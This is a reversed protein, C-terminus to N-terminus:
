GFLGALLSNGVMRPLVDETGRYPLAVPRGEIASAYLGFMADAQPIVASLATPHPVDNDIAALARRVLAAQATLDEDLYNVSGARYGTTGSTEWGHMQWHVFGRTGYVAIRKHRHPRQDDCSAPANPGCALAVRVRNSLTMEALVLGPARHSAEMDAQSAQGFISVPAAEGNFAAILDLLHPGQDAVNMRCSADVFRVEGIRGERVAEILAALREHFRLQLNVILRTRPASRAIVDLAALDASDLAIPKEIIVAPVEREVAARLLAARESPGTSVILLEPRERELMETLDTYGGPVQFNTNFSASREADLDCAAIIEAEDIRSCALGHLHARPGCGVIAIRRRATRARTAKAGTGAASGAVTKVGATTGKADIRDGHRARVSEMARDAVALVTDIDAESHAYSVFWLHRPHLLVGGAIVETIFTESLRAAVAPDPHLVQMNPMPPLPEGRANFPVGHRAASANLGEILREGMRWVHDFVPERELVDLTAMAAAMAVTDSHFTASLHMGAASQMVERRGVVAAIPWGNGLAKSVTTLDPRVDLLQQLSGPRVRFATKIEDLIFVAGHRRTIAILEEYVGREAPIMAEAAMIVAAIEGPHAEFLARLTAPESAKFGLVQADLGSPVFDSSALCWDHWGHYGCRAVKRRGTNRRAIRVAATTAESGTKFFTAMEAAPFWRLLREVFRVHLPHNLTLLNGQRAQEAAARDVEENAYGLLFPGLAMILDIYEHGDIDWCRGGKGREIYVPSGGPLTLPKGSLHYGGPIWQEAQGLLSWSKTFRGQDTM